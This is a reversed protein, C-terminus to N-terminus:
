PTADPVLLEISDLSELVEHAIEQWAAQRAFATIVVQSHDILFVVAAFRLHEPEAGEREVSGGYHIWLARKGGGLTREEISILELREDVALQVINEDAVSDLDPHFFNPLSLVNISGLLGSSTDRYAFPRQNKEVPEWCEPLRMRVGYRPLRWWGDELEFVPAAPAGPAPETAAGAVEVREVRREKAPLAILILAGAALAVVLGVFRQTTATHM